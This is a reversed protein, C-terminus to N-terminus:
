SINRLHRRNFLLSLKVPYAFNINKLARSYQFSPKQLSAELNQKSPSESMHENKLAREFADMLRQYFIDPSYANVAKERAAMGMEICLKPDNWLRQIKETLDGADDFHFLLGTVGDDVIEPLGGIDSCVVPKSSLMAEVVAMPLGEYWKSPVAIMRARAYFATLAAQDLQGM